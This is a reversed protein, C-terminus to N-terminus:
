FIQFNDFCENKVCLAKAEAFTYSSGVHSQEKNNKFVVYKGVLNHHINKQIFCGKYLWESEEILIPKETKEDDTKKIDIEKWQYTVFLGSSDKVHEEMKIIKFYIDIPSYGCNTIVRIPKETTVIEKITHPEDPFGSFNENFDLKHLLFEGSDLTRGFAISYVKDGIALNDNSLRYRINNLYTEIRM